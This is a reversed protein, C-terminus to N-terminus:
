AADQRYIAKETFLEPSADTVTKGHIYKLFAIDSEVFDVPTGDFDFLVAKFMRLEEKGGKHLLAM